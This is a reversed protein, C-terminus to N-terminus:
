DHITHISPHHIADDRDWDGHPDRNQSEENRGFTTAGRSPASPSSGELASDSVLPPTAYAASFGLSSLLPGAEEIEVLFGM